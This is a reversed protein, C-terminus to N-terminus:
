GFPTMYRKYLTTDFNASCHAGSVDLMLVTKVLIHLRLTLVGWDVGHICEPSNMSTCSWMNQIEASSPPSHDAELEPQKVELFYDQSVM